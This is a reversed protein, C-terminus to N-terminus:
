VNSAFKEAADLREAILIADSVVTLNPDKLV